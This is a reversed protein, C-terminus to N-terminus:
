RVAPTASIARAIADASKELLEKYKFIPKIRKLPPTSGWSDAAAKATAIAANVEDATSLPLTATQEGTAPNFIASTRKSASTVKRGGIANQITQM